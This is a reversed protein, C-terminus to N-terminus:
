VYRKMEFRKVPFGMPSYEVEGMDFGLWELWRIATKNEIDVFNVLHQYDGLMKSIVDKSERLFTKGHHEILDTGLMWPSGVGQSVGAVGFLCVLEGNIKGTQVWDSIRLARRLCPEPEVGSMRYIELRDAYRINDALEKM